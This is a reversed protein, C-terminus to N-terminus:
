KHRHKIEATLYDIQAQLAAIQKYAEVRQDACAELQTRLAKIELGTELKYLQLAEKYENKQEHRLQDQAWLAACLLTVPLGARRMQEILLKYFENVLTQKQM